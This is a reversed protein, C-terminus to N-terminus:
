PIEEPCVGTVDCVLETLPQPDVPPPTTPTPEPTPTPRPPAPPTTPQAPSVPAGDEFARAPAPASQPEPEPEPELSADRRQLNEREQPTLQDIPLGPGCGYKARPRDLLGGEPLTDLLDCMARRIREQSEAEMRASEADRYEGRGEVYQQQRYVFVTLTGVALLLAVVALVLATLIRRTSRPLRYAPESCEPPMEDPWALRARDSARRRPTDADM